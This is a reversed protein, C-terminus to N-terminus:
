AARWGRGDRREFAKIASVMQRGAEALDGGPAVSVVINYTAGMGGGRGLPVVAEPGAEGIMALTPRTAIGGKALAPVDINPLIDGAGWEIAVKPWGIHQGLVEIDFAEAFTFGGAGFAGLSNWFEVFKKALTRIAGLIGGSIAGGIRKAAALTDEVAGQLKGIVGNGVGMAGEVWKPILGVKELVGDLIGGGIEKAKDTLPQIAAGLKGLVGEEGMLADSAKTPLGGLMKDLDGLMDLIGQTAQQGAGGVDGKLLSSISGFFGEAAHTPLGAFGTAMTVFLDTLPQQLDVLNQVHPQLDQMLTVMKGFASQFDPGLAEGLNGFKEGLGQVDSQIGGITDKADTWKGGTMKDLAPTIKSDATTWAAAVDNGIGELEALADRLEGKSIAGVIGEMHENIQNELVGFPDNKAATRAAGRVKKGLEEVRGGATKSKLGFRDVVRASGKAAQQVLLLASNLNPASGSAVLDQAIRLRDMAQKPRGGTAQLARNYAMIAETDDTGLKLTSRSIADITGSLKSGDLGLNRWTTSLQASAKEGERFGSWAEGITDTLKEFGQIALDAVVATGWRTVTRGFSKMRGESKRLSKDMSSTDGLLKLMLIRDAAM